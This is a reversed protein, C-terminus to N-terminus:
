DCLRLRPWHRQWPKGALRARYQASRRRGAPTPRVVMSLLDALGYPATLALEGRADLRVAVCTPTELWFRLADASDRYPPDDNRLHMRAQNRVSWPVDPRRASLAKEATKEPSKSLDAPDFYIVDVDDLPTPRDYGHLLDWVKARVFGAGIWWDPLELEAVTALVDMMWPDARILSLVRRRDDDEM